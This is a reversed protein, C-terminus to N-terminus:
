AGISIDGKQFFSFDDPSMDSANIAIDAIVFGLVNITVSLISEGYRPRIIQSKLL